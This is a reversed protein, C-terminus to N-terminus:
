KVKNKNYYIRRGIYHTNFLWKPTEGEDRFMAYMKPTIPSKPYGDGATKDKYSEKKKWLEIERQYKLPIKSM